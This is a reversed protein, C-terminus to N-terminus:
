FLHAKLESRISNAIQVPQRQCPTISKMIRRPLTDFFLSVVFPHLEIQPLQRSRRTLRHVAVAMQLRGWVGAKEVCQVHLDGATPREPGEFLRKGQPM